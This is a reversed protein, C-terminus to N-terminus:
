LTESTMLEIGTLREFIKELNLDDTNKQNVWNFFKGFVLQWKHRSCTKTHLYRERKVQIWNGRLAATNCNSHKPGSQRHKTESHRLILYTFSGRFILEFINNERPQRVGVMTPHDLKMAMLMVLPFSKTQFDQVTRYCLNTM